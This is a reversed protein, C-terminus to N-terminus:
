KDTNIGNFQATKLGWALANATIVSNYVPYRKAAVGRGYNDKPIPYNNSNINFPCITNSITNMHASSNFGGDCVFFFNLTNHRFMTVMGNIVNSTSSGSIDNANSYITIQSVPLNTIARTQSADEGWQKGRVDGFKGNMIEDNVYPLQYVAGQDNVATGTISTDAFLTQLVTTTGTEQMYGLLVGGKAVYNVLAQCMDATPNWWVGLTVIDPNENLATQLTALTPSFDGTRTFTIGEISVISEELLGFNRTDTIFKNPNSGSSSFAYGFSSAYTGISLIKKPSLAIRVTASCITVDSISNCTITFTKDTYSNPKGSGTLTVTQTGGVLIGSGSFKFGDVTNTEIIYTAGTASPDVDLEISIYNTADLAKNVQYVGRVTIGGCDMSYIPKISSDEVKVYTTCGSDIGNLSFSFLDGSKTSPTFNTPTGYGKLYLTFTGTTLFEGSDSFYYGNDPDSIANITYSGPKTVEVVIKIYHSTGLSEKNLYQGFVVTKDCNMTFKAKGLKGCLSQWEANLKSYYNYCDEDINYIMLSNIETAESVDMRNRQLETLRPIMIGKAITDRGNVINKVQLETLRYPVETNIGVQSYSYSTNLLICNLLLFLIKKRM